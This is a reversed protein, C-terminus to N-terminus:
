FAHVQFPTVCYQLAQDFDEVDDIQEIAEFLSIGTRITNQPCESLFRDYFGKGYGVRNGAVDFALVPVLVLDIDKLLTAEGDTVEPIGWNSEKFESANELYIHDLEGTGPKVRPVSIRIAPYNKRLRDIILWSNPENNRKMPLFVHVVRMSRFDTNSFLRDCIAESRAAVESPNLEKRKTLYIKRLERKTM